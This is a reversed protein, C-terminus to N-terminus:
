YSSWLSMLYSRHTDFNCIFKTQRMTNYFLGKFALTICAIKKVKEILILNRLSRKVLISQQLLEVLRTYEWQTQKKMSKTPISEQFVTSLHQLWHIKLNRLTMRSHRTFAKEKNKSKTKIHFVYVSQQPGYEPTRGASSLFSLFPLIPNRSCLFAVRLSPKCPDDCSWSLPLLLELCEQTFNCNRLMTNRRYYNDKCVAM